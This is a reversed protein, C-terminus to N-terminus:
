VYSYASLIVIYNFISFTTLKAIILKILEDRSYEVHMVIDFMRLVHHIYLDFRERKKKILNHQASMEQVIKRKKEKKQQKKM